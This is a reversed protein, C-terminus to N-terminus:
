APRREAGDGLTAGWVPTATVTVGPEGTEKPGTDTLWRRTVLVIVTCLVPEVPTVKPVSPFDPPWAEAKVTDASVQEPRVTAAWPLQVKLTTKSGDAFPRRLAVRLRGRTPAEATTVM